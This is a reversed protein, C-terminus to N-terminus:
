GAGGAERKVSIRYVGAGPPGSLSYNRTLPAAGGEPRLRVVVHQGPLATPLTSGGPEALTFSRVDATEAVISLIQLRRFGLWSPPAAEPQALGANGTQRGLGAATLLAQLSTRWGPSLAPIRLARELRDRRHGPLYLLADVEAITVREPGAAIKVIADGAGGEREQLLRM